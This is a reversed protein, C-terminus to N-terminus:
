PEIPVFLFVLAIAGLMADPEFFGLANKVIWMSTQKMIWFM